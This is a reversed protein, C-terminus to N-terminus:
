IGALKKIATLDTDEKAEKDKIAKKMPETKDGDKDMDLFDPKAEVMEDESFFEELQLGAQEIADKLTYEKGGV